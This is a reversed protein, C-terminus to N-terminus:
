ADGVIHPLCCMSVVGCSAGCEHVQAPRSLGEYQPLPQPRSSLTLYLQLSPGPNGTYAARHSSCMGPQGASFASLFSQLEGWSSVGTIDCVLLLNALMDAYHKWLQEQSLAQIRGALMM